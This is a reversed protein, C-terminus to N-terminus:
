ESAKISDEKALQAANEVASMILSSLVIVDYMSNSSTRQLVDVIDNHLTVITEQIKKREEISKGVFLSNMFTSHIIDAFSHVTDNFDMGEIEQMKESIALANQERLKKNYVLEQETM